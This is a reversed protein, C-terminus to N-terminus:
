KQAAQWEENGERQPKCIWHRVSHEEDIPDRYQDRMRDAPAGTLPPVVATSIRFARKKKGEKGKRCSFTRNTHYENFARGYTFVTSVGQGFTVVTHLGSYGLYQFRCRGYGMFKMFDDRASRM